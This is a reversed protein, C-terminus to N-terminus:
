FVDCTSPVCNFMSVADDCSYMVLSLYVISCLFLMMVLICWLHFPCLQVYFCSWCWYVDCPFPVCNFMSVADDGSYMVLSLSVISCLFLMMVLICWLHFPCLQVYFRCWWWFVDCPFPVYKFMSVDYDGSYMVRSLSVISCLFLMMVLICWLHFPCLQIYFRCWWWFVDCPFPVYKFMSVDYDGSYMVRSLSVISCLFLMMLLICWLHFPCLQVYFCCWWLFVDFTFPVCNFMSVAYDSSYVVLPLSVISCPFLMMGLICWLHFLCLQVYFCCCWWFVDCTFPVCNFMSVVDDGSHMVLPLSVTSCLFLMIVFICWLHFPCLQVYFRCWWWFVDCPFPVYKFMSVDYDGSYMVLSLSVISCLFMMMVLICRLHVPCLQVYFRCWWWIVDCTFPVCNFMSVDYDGSYMAISLSVISCLFVMMVLICRLHVPCLQVYFCCWWWFVDCIFPVCKFMSVAYDSSYMVLPLSVISCLFLMMVLICWLHFTCSQVYFCCWWWFVDCTFPVCNFMSVAEAGTYMVLSLYVISCLFLMMVLICWLHFLCLQVYFCCWWWFVDCTFPVCNFMSVADDGSYMALSLSMNLCLFMMIVLICWLHFPCLQVYFCSWCWYVDCPFPVCNFMSVADDGSYMVLSLSVISCLFLMMVLICWLHFPCLQVDFRCWWWFVDCPFPVYKFMSVDYDGSYMVRSLAVISCLFMMMVLICWLQFPCLQVFFCCSWWFVDCTFRVCNFMSVADDDSYMVLSLSVISCLFLMMVLICWLHFPCLQVYFRCWWWFVDCIFPVCNSISVADDGSYMVLSLSMNLCLFMIIVPNCWLHFPCLQVYFCWWRWFVDCNFPVCNFLPVGDDGSYMALSRSVISCLFLMM